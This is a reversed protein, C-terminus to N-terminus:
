SAATLRRGIAIGFLDLSDQPLKRMDDKDFALQRSERIRKNAVKQRM